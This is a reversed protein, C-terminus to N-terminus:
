SQFVMFVTLAMKKGMIPYNEIQLLESWKLQAEYLKPAQSYSAFNISLILILCFSYKM